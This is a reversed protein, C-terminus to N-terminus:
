SVQTPDFKPRANADEKEEETEGEKEKEQGEGEPELPVVENDLVEDEIVADENGLFVM